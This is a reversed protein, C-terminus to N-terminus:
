LQDSQVDVVQLLTGFPQDDRTSAAFRILFPLSPADANGLAGVLRGAGDPRELLPSRCGVDVRTGQEAHHVSVTVNEPVAKGSFGHTDDNFTVDLLEAAIWRFKPPVAEASAEGCRSGGCSLGFARNHVLGAVSTDCCNPAVDTLPIQESLISGLSQAESTSCENKSSARKM